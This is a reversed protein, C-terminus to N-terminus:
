PGQTGVESITDMLAAHTVTEPVIVAIDAGCAPTQWRNSVPFTVSWFRMWASILEFTGPRPGIQLNRVGNRTCSGIFGVLRGAVTVYACRGPHM